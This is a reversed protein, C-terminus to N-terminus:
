PAASGALTGVAGLGGDATPLSLYLSGFTADEALLQGITAEDKHAAWWDKGALRVRLTTKRERFDGRVVVVGQANVTGEFSWEKGDEMKIVVKASGEKWTIKATIAGLDYDMWDAAGKLDVSGESPDFGSAEVGVGELAVTPKSMLSSLLYSGDDGKLRGALLRVLEANIWPYGMSTEYVASELAPTDVSGTEAGAWTVLLDAEFNGTTKLVADRVAEKDGALAKRLVVNGAALGPDAKIGFGDRAKAVRDADAVQRHLLYYAELEGWLGATTAGMTPGSKMLLKEADAPRQGSFYASFFASVWDFLMAGDLRTGDAVKEIMDERSTKIAALELATWWDPYAKGPKALLERAAGAAWLYDGGFLVTDKGDFTSTVLVKYFDGMIEPKDLGLVRLEEPPEIRLPQDKWCKAMFLAMHARVSFPFKAAVAAIEDVHSGCGSGWLAVATWVREGSGAHELYHAAATDRAEGQLFAVAKGREIMEWVQVTVPNQELKELTSLVIVPDNTREAVWYILLEVYERRVGPVEEIDDASELEEKLAEPDLTLAMEFGKFYTWPGSDEEFGAAFKQCLKVLDADNKTPDNKASVLWAVAATVDHFKEWMEEAAKMRAAHQATYLARYLYSHYAEPYKTVMRDFLAGSEAERGMWGLSVAEMALSGSWEAGLQRATRLADVAPQPEGAEMAALGLQFLLNAYVDKDLAKGQAAVYDALQKGYKSRGVFGGLLIDQNKRCYVSPIQREEKGQERATLDEVTQEAKEAVTSVWLAGTQPDALETDKVAQVLAYTLAGMKQRPLEYSVGGPACGLIVAVNAERGLKVLETGFPNSKGSRCADAVFIVNKIGSKAIRSLISKVPLGQSMAKAKTADTPMLLDTGDSGIGHGSFYFVLLDGKSLSKDALIGDLTRNINEVTPKEEAKERKDTLVHVNGKEFQYEGTLASAFAEADSAAFKLQGLEQYDSAGIVVAWRKPMFFSAEQGGQGWATAAVLCFLWASVLKGFLRGRNM